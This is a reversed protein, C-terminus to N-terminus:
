YTVTLCKNVYKPDRKLILNEAAWRGADERSITYGTVTSERGTKPHEIGVRIKRDSEGDLLLSPRILAFDEGSETLSAEMIIKDDLPVTLLARYVPWLSLPFDRGFTSLGVGSCCVILPRGTAGLRRLQSLAELLASMGKSCVSPDDLSMKSAVFKGGITTVITDVLTGDEKRLCGTLAAVDHANGPVVTLNPNNALPLKGTLTSPTRCLAICQHGAALTVKLAALGIGTSAGIFVVTQTNSPM